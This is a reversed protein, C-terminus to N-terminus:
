KGNGYGHCVGTRGAYGTVPVEGTVTGMGDESDPNEEGEQGEEYDLAVVTTEQQQQRKKREEAQKNTFVVVGLILLISLSVGMLMYKMSLRTNREESEGPLRM